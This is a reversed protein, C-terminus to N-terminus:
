LIGKPHKFKYEERGMQKMINLTECMEVLMHTLRNTKKKKNGM